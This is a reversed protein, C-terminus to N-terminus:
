WRLVRARFIPVDKGPHVFCGKGPDWRRSRTHLGSGFARVRVGGPVM